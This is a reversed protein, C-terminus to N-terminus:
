LSFVLFFFFICLTELQESARGDKRRSEEGRWGTDAKMQQREDGGRDTGLIFRAHDRFIDISLECM